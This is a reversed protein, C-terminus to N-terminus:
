NKTTDLTYEEALEKAAPKVKKLQYDSPCNDYHQKGSGGMRRHIFTWFEDHDTKNSKYYGRIAFDLAHALEHSVTDYVEEPSDLILSKPNLEIIIHGYVGNIFLPKYDSESINFLKKATKSRVFSCTGATTRLYENLIIHVQLRKLTTKWEKSVTHHPYSCFARKARNIM